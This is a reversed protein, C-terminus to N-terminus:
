QVFRPEEEPSRGYVCPVSSIRGVDRFMAVDVGRGDDVSLKTRFGGDDGALSRINVRSLTM